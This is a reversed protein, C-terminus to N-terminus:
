ETKETISITPVESVQVSSVYSDADPVDPGGFSRVAADTSVHYTAMGAALYRAEKPDSAVPAVEWQTVVCHNVPGDNQAAKQELCERIAGEYLAATKKVEQPTRGRVVAAVRTEWEAQVNATNAGGTLKTAKATTVVIAPLSHDMIEDIDIYTDWSMPMPLTAANGAGDKLQRSESLLRLYTPLWEKLTALVSDDIDTTIVLPRARNIGYVAM